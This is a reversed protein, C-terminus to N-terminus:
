GSKPRLPSLPASGRAMAVELPHHPLLGGILVTYIFGHVLDISLYENLSRIGLGFIDQIFCLADQLDALENDLADRKRVRILAGFRPLSCLMGILSATLASLNPLFSYSM